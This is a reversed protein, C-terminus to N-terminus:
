SDDTGVSIESSVSENDSNWEQLRREAEALVEDDIEGDYGMDVSVNEAFRKLAGM